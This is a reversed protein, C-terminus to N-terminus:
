GMTSLQQRAEGVYGSEPFEDVVRKFAAKAEQTKGAKRCVRALEMLVGDIPLKSDRQASLDTLLKIADDFKQQAALAQVHGLKAMDAYVSSGGKSVAEAFAKDADAPRGLQLYTTGLHYRAATGTEQNSYGDIVKQLAAIAAEGRAAETPFTGAPQAAGPISSPPTIPSQMVTLAAGLQASAKDRSQAQMYFYAGVIAALILVGAIIALIRNLNTSLQEAVWAARIAFENQKLHHREEKKM